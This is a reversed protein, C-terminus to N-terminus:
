LSLRRQVLFTSSHAIFVHIDLLDLDSGAVALIESVHPCKESPMASPQPMWPQLMRDNHRGSGPAYNGQLPTELTIFFTKM